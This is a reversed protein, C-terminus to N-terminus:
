TLLRRCWSNASFSSRSPHPAFAAPSEPATPDAVRVSKACHGDCAPASRPSLLRGHTRVETISFECSDLRCLVSEARRNRSLDDRVPFEIGGRLRGLLLLDLGADLLQGVGIALLQAHVAPAKELGCAAHGGGEHGHVVHEALHEVDGLGLRGVGHHGLGPGIPRLALEDHVDLRVPHAVIVVLFPEDAEQLLHVM